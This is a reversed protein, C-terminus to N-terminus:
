KDLKLNETEMAMRCQFDAIDRGYIEKAVKIVLM